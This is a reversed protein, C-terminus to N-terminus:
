LTTVLTVDRTLTRHVGNKDTSNCEPNKRFSAKHHITLTQHFGNNGPLNREPNKRFSAKLHNFPLIDSRLLPIPPPQDVFRTLTTQRNSCKTQPLPNALTAKIKPTSAELSAYRMSCPAPWSKNTHLDM